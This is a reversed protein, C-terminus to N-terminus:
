PALPQSTPSAAPLSPCSMWVEFVGENDRAATRPTRPHDAAVVMCWRCAQGHKHMTSTLWALLFPLSAAPLCFTSPHHRRQAARDGAALCNMRLKTKATATKPREASTHRARRETTKTRPTQPPRADETWESGGTACSKSRSTVNMTGTSPQRKQEQHTGVAAVFSCSLDRRGHRDQRSASVCLGGAHRPTSTGDRPTGCRAQGCRAATSGYRM